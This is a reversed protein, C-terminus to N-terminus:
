RASSVPGSGVQIVGNEVLWGVADLVTGLASFQPRFGLLRAAKEMSCHPSHAIHDWTIEADRDRDRAVAGLAPVRPEGGGFLPGRGRRVLASRAACRRGRCPFEGGAGHVPEGDRRPVRRGRGCTCMQVTELGLNPLALEDGRALTEFVALDLHGAPNM